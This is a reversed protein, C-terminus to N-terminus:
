KRYGQSVPAANIALLGSSGSAIRAYRVFADHVIKYANEDGPAAPAFKVGNDTMYEVLEQVNRARPSNGGGLAKRSEPRELTNVSAILSDYFEIARIYTHTEIEDKQMQRRLEERMSTLGARIETLQKLELTGAITAEVAAPILKDLKKQEPGRLALPWELAAGGGRLMGVSSLGTGSINLRNVVSQALPVPPGQTGQLTFSEVLPLMTNLTKGGSIEAREPFNMMRVVIQAKNASLSELYNPTNAKEYMMQDFAQRQTALKEQSAKEKLIWAHHNAIAVDGTSRNLDAAGKLVNGAAENPNYYPNPYYPRGYGPPPYQAGVGSSTGAITLTALFLALIDRNM